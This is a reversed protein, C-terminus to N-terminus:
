LGDRLPFRAPFPGHIKDFSKGRGERDLRQRLQEAHRHLVAVLEEFPRVGDDRLFVRFQPRALVVDLLLDALHHHIGEAQALFTQLRRAVIEDGHERMRLHVARRHRRSFEERREDKEDDGALAFLIGIGLDFGDLVVYILISLGMLGAFILPLLTPWDLTM